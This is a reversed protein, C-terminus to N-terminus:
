TSRDARDSKVNRRSIACLHCPEFAGIGESTPTPTTQYRSPAASVLGQGDYTRVRRGLAELRHETTRARSTMHSEGAGTTVDKNDNREDRQAAELGTCGVRRQRRKVVRGTRVDLEQAGAQGGAQRVEHAVAEAEEIQRDAIVVHTRRQGLARALGAGIGSAGGTVIIVAREYTRIM